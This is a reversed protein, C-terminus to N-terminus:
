AEEADGYKARRYRMVAQLSPGEGHREDDYGYEDSDLIARIEPCGLDDNDFVCDKALEWSEVMDHIDGSWANSGDLMYYPDDTDFGGKGLDILEWASFGELGSLDNMRYITLGWHEEAIDIVDDDNMRYIYVSIADFKTM